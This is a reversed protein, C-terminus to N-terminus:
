QAGANTEVGQRVVMKLVRKAAARLPKDGDRAVRELEAIGQERRGLGLLVLGYNNRARLNGPDIALARELHTLAVDFRGQSLEFSGLNMAADSFLPHARVAQEFAKAAKEAEGLDLHALGLNNWAAASLPDLDIARQIEAIAEKPRGLDALLNGLNNHAQFSAPDMKIARRYNAIAERGRGLKVQAAALTQYPEPHQLELKALARALADTGAAPEDGEQIHAMNVYIEQLFGGLGKEPYYVVPRSRHDEDETQPEPLAALLDRTPKHRQILHDTMTVHVVDETRRKPMHCGVCDARAFEEVSLRHVVETESDHCGLCRERYYSARPVANLPLHPDHCSSCTMAGASQQFCASTRLRYPAGDLGFADNHGSDPEFDFHVIYDSLAEGPRYSYFRRGFRLLTQPARFPTRLHCQMCLDIQRANDLRAPNVISDRIADPSETRRAVAVHAEGPGHCRQCDVGMPLPVNFRPNHDWGPRDAALPELPYGNHCFMCNNTIARTVGGHKPRDYGPAMAWRNEQSYWSIPLAIMSGDALQHIYSRARDGSGMVHTIELELEQAPRGQGDIEYRRFFFRGDRRTMEYHRKSPEHYFNNARKWDEIVPGKSPVFFSRAKTTGQYGAYIESHCAQCAAAEVYGDQAQALAPIALVILSGRLAM